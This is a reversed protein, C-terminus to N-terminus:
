AWIIEVVRDADVHAYISVQLVECETGEGKWSVCKQRYKGGDEQTTDM